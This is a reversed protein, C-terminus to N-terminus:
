RYLGQNRAQRDGPVDHRSTFPPTKNCFHVLGEIRETTFQSPMGPVMDLVTRHPGPISIM